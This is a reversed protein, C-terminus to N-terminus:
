GPPPPPTLEIRLRTIRVGDVSEVTMAIAGVAVTDGPQPLRGLTNLVLGAITRAGQQTLQTGVAENFDDVTM